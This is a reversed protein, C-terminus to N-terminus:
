LRLINIFFVLFIISSSFFLDSLNSNFIRGSSVALSSILFPVSTSDARHLHGAVDTSSGDGVYFSGQPIYVMEIAFVKVTVSDDDNVLNTGYNWRLKVGNLSFTGTGNGDRYIFGGTGDLPVDITSGSPATHGSTNLAAHKWENSGKVKYKVFVWIADYNYPDETSTRWSNEWSVDFQVFTFDNFADQDVLVVNEVLTNNAFMSASFYLTVLIYKKIFGM